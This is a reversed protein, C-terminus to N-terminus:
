EPKGNDTVAALSGSLDYLQAQDYKSKHWLRKEDIKWDVAASTARTGVTFTGRAPLVSGEPFRVCEEGKSSFLIWGSLDIAEDSSNQLTLLDDEPTIAAQLLRSHDPVDWDMARSAAMGDRLDIEVGRAYDQTVLIEAGYRAYRKLISSAPTDPEQATSTCILAIQPSVREVFAESSATNDGHFPVKLVDAPGILGAEMLEYEEELKMDGTFLLSGDKTEVTFVLSNNNENDTNRTLPGLVRLSANEGLQLQDGANLWTVEEGRLAAALAMPHQGDKVDHYIAPAYWADVAVDSEALFALGGYHDKDCHTLFVGNLRNVSERRLLEALANYTYDYGSDILYAQDDFLLLLCDAKGANLALLRAGDEARAQCGACGLLTTLVLLVSLLKRM